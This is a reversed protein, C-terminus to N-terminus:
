QAQNWVCRIKGNTLNLSAVIFIDNWTRKPLKLTFNETIEQKSLYQTGIQGM